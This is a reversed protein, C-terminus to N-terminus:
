PMRSSVRLNNSRADTPQVFVGPGDPRYNLTSGVLVEGDRFVEIKRGRPRTVFQKDEVHGSGDRTFV